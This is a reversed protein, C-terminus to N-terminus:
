ARGRTRVALWVDYARRLPATLRWSISARLARVEGRARACEARVDALEDERVTVRQNGAEDRRRALRDREARLLAVHAKVSSDREREKADNARLAAAVRREQWLLVEHLNARYVDEHKRFLYRTLERHVDSSTCSASMSDPRKRYFFLAEPLITGHHGAKVLRIWLDWDEDGPAPMQEDYGGADVVTQRRVLAATMVTDEALLAPLDCREQRWVGSQSGFEQIWASVFTLSPEDDFRRLARAFYEPPLRDDADLACLFDGTAHGILFNRAAALGRNAQRWVRTRPRRFDALLRITGEETSGDDVILIEFDQHTQALVSGVAEDLFEGLNFCPIIVSVRPVSTAYRCPPWGALPRRRGAPM